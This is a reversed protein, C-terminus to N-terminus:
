DSVDALCIGFPNSVEAARHCANYQRSDPGRLLAGVYPHGKSPYLAGGEEGGSPIEWLQRILGPFVLM